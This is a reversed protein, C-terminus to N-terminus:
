VCRSTYLLCGLDLLAFFAEVLPNEIRVGQDAVSFPIRRERPAGDFVAEIRDRICM